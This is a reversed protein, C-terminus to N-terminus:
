SKKVRLLGINLKLSLGILPDSELIYVYLLTEAMFSLPTIMAENNLFLFM